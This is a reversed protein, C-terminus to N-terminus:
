NISYLLLRSSYKFKPILKMIWYKMFGIRKWAKFDCYHKSNKMNLKPHWQEFEDDNDCGMVFKASANKITDHKDSNKVMWTSVVDCAIQSNNFRNSLNIFTNKIKNKEFYMIVGEIIFLFNANQHNEKLYEMWDTELLSGVVCIDNKSEPILKRRLDIVEELDLEYFIAKDTINKGIRQFRSDLGCGLNIVIPNENKQIFNKAIEDFYNSRIACGLASGSAKAYKQFDYDIQKVLKCAVPDNIIPNPRKSENAKMLLTIYLTDSIKNKIDNKIKM